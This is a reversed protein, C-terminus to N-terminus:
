PRVTSVYSVMPSVGPQPPPFPNHRGDDEEAEVQLQEGKCLGGRCPDCCCATCGHPAVSQGSLAVEKCDHLERGKAM